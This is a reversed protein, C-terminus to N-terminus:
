LCILGKNTVTTKTTNIATQATLYTTTAAYNTTDVYIKYANDSLKDAYPKLHGQYFFAGRKNSNTSDAKNTLSTFKTFDVVEVATGNSLGNAAPVQDGYLESDGPKKAFVDKGYSTRNTYAFAFSVNELKATNYAIGTSLFGKDSSSAISQLRSRAFLYAINKM